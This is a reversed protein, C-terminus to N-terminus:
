RRLLHLVADDGVVLANRVVTTSLMSCMSDCVTSPRETMLIKKWGPVFTGMAIVSTVAMEWDIM